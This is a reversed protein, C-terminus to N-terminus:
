NFEPLQNLLTQYDMRVHCFMVLTMVFSDGSQDVRYIMRYDDKIMEKYHDLNLYQCKKGSRPSTALQNKFNTLAEKVVTKARQAAVNKEKWQVALKIHKQATKTINFKVSYNTM